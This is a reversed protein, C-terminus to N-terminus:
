RVGYVAGLAATAVALGGFTAGLGITGFRLANVAAVDDPTRDTNENLEARRAGYLAGVVVLAIATAASLGVTTWLGIALGRPRRSSGVLQMVLNLDVPTGGPVLLQQRITEYGDLRAELQYEGNPLVLPDPLPTTGVQQSGLLLTAGEPETAITVRSFQRRWGQLQLQLVYRQSGDLEADAMYRRLREEAAEYHGLGHLALALPYLVTPEQVLQYSQELLRAAEELRHENFAMRGEQALDAARDARQDPPVEGAGHDTGFPNVSFPDQSGGGEEEALALSSWFLSLAAITLYAVWLRPAM